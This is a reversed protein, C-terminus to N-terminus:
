PLLLWLALLREFNPTGLGTVPDWGTTATFGATGCGQNGGQTIDNFAARFPATYIAPNIFSSHSADVPGKGKALRADNIFTIISGTTPASASTGFAHKFEGDIAIIYNICHTLDPFARSTGSNNFQAGIFPPPHDKLFAEVSEEQYSPIAFINSFGGGSFIVQECAGEPQFVTSNPNVQTAGVSTVFPCGSPFSPNFRTGSTTETGNETLCVGGIGAVGDDGSSYLITTGMLGIKAYETCQRMAYKASVIIEDQGYSVTVVNPPLAPDDGSLVTSLGEFTCFSADVADLWNDLGAGEILDGTQLVQVPQPATLSTSYELDLDSEGSLNFSQNTTQAVGGDISIFVPKQGAAFTNEKTSVPTYHINYLTQLCIPTISEDCDELGLATSGDVKRGDTKPGNFSSPSGLKTPQQVVEPTEGRKSLSKLSRKRTKKPPVRAGFATTPKILDIHSTLHQPIHYESCGIREAGNEDEYVHYEAKLLNEVESAAAKVQIWGKSVSLRLRSREIGSIQAASWHKGYDPSELHSVAMLVDEITHMNQQTLGIKVPLIAHGELRRSLRWGRAEPAFARKEHLVHPSLHPEAAALAALAVVFFRAFASM